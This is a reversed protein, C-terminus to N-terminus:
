QRCLRHISRGVLHGRTIPRHGEGSDQALPALRRSALRLESVFAPSRLNSPGAPITFRQV